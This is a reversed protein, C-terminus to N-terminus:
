CAGATARTTEGPVLACAHVYACAAAAARKVKADTDAAAAGVGRKSMEWESGRHPRPPRLLHHRRCPAPPSLQSASPSQTVPQFPGDISGDAQYNPARKVYMLGTAPAPIQRTASDCYIVTLSPTLASGASGRVGGVRRHARVHVLACVCLLLLLSPSPNVCLNVVPTGCSATSHVFHWKPRQASKSKIACLVNISLVCDSEKKREKKRECM